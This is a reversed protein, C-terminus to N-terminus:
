ASRPRRRLLPRLVTLCAGLVAGFTAHGIVGRIHAEVPFDFPSPELQVANLGEDVVVFAAAGTLVGVRFPRIGVGVLLAALAGYAMAVGRHAILGLREIEADDADDKKLLGAVDRGAAVIAGGPFVMQERAKSEASQREYYWSTAIHMVRNAGYGAAAGLVIRRMLMM